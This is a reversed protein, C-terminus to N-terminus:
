EGKVLAFVGTFWLEGGPVTPSTTKVSYKAIIRKGLRVKGGDALTGDKKLPKVFKALQDGIAWVPKSATGGKVAVPLNERIDNSM